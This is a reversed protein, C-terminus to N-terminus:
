QVLGPTDNMVGEHTEPTLFTIHDSLETTRLSREDFRRSSPYGHKPSVNSTVRCLQLGIDIFTTLLDM